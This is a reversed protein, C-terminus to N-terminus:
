KEIIDCGLFRGIERHRHIMSRSILICESAIAVISKLMLLSTTTIGTTVSSRVILVITLLLAVTIEVITLLVVVILVAVLITVSQPWFTM